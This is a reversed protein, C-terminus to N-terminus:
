RRSPRLNCPAAPKESCPRIERLAQYHRPKIDVFVEALNGYPRSHRFFPPDFYPAILPATWQRLFNGNAVDILRLQARATNDGKAFGTTETVLLADLALARAKALAATQSAVYFLDINRM